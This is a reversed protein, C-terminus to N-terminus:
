NRFVHLRCTESVQVPAQLPDQNILQLISRIAKEGLQYPHEEVSASLPNNMYRLASLNGFGVFEMKQLLEPSNAKLYEIADLAVHDKFTLVATPKAPAQLVRQFATVTGKESLDTTAILDEHITLGASRMAWKYGELREHSTILDDPGKLHAISRHGKAILFETANKAAEFVNNKVYNSQELKPSRVFYLVPIQFKEFQQIHEYCNTNKTITIILADVRQSLMMAALEKEKEVNEHSQCLLVKYNHQVAAAEIGSLAEVYFQDRLSPLIIGIQNTRKQQFFRAAENPVYNLLKAKEKVREKTMASISPHDNLAKSVTSPSMHLVRAIEVITVPKNM